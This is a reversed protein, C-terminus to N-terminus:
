SAVRICSFSTFSFLPSLDLSYGIFLTLFFLRLDVIFVILYTIPEGKPTLTGKRNLSLFSIITILSQLVSLRFKAGIIV